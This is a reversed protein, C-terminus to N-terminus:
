DSVYFFGIKINQWRKKRFFSFFFIRVYRAQELVSRKTVYYLVVNYKKEKDFSQYTDFLSRLFRRRSQRCRSTYNIFYFDCDTAVTKKVVDLSMKKVHIETFIYKKVNGFNRWTPLWFKKGTVKIGKAVSNMQIKIKIVWMKQQDHSTKNTFFLVAQPRTDLNHRCKFLDYICRDVDYKPWKTLTKSELSILNVPHLEEYYFIELKEQKDSGMTIQVSM